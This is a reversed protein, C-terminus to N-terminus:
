HHPKRLVVITSGLYQETEPVRRHPEVVFGLRSAEVAVQDASVRDLHVVVDEVLRHRTSEIIERRRHLAARGGEEVVGVLQSAYRTTGVDRADPPPPVSHDADFCDMADALAAAVVGGPNLHRSACRLFAERGPRGDLLQLTQMPVVILAFRRATEFDRADAHVTEVPLAGARHELAALLSAERDLAIVDLGQAALDLTVRGTGAGVDLVPGGTAAALARWAPLDERYGGCELDHWLAAVNVTPM